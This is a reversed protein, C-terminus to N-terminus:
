WNIGDCVWNQLIGVIKHRTQFSTSRKSWGYPGAWSNWRRVFCGDESPSTCPWLSSEGCTWFWVQEVGVPLTAGRAVIFLITVIQCYEYCSLLCKFYCGTSKLGLSRLRVCTKCPMLSFPLDVLSLTAREPPCLCSWCAWECPWTMGLVTLQSHWGASFCFNFFQLVTEHEQTFFAM